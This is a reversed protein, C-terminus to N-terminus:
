SRNNHHFLMPFKLVAARTRRIKGSAATHWESTYCTLTSPEPAYILRNDKTGVGILSKPLRSNSRATSQNETPRQESEPCPCPSESEHGLSANNVESYLAAM